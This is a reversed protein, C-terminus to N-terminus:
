NPVNSPVQYVIRESPFAVDLDQSKWHLEIPHSAEFYSLALRYLNTPAPPLAPLDDAPFTALHGLVADMRPYILEYFARLEPLPTALRKSYREQETALAWPSVLSVLDEFGDPLVAPAAPASM